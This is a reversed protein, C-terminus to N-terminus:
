QPLHLTELQYTHRLIHFISFNLWEYISRYGFAPMEATLCRKDFDLTTICDNIEAQLNSLSLLHISKDYDKIAPILFDPSKLKVTTNLMLERIAEINLDYQDDSIETIETLFDKFGNTAMIIHEIIQAANWGASEKNYLDEPTTEIVSVLKAFNFENLKLLARKESQYKLTKSTNDWLQMTDVYHVDDRFGQQTVTFECSYEDVPKLRYAITCYEEPVDEANWFSSWYSFKVANNEKYEKIEGKDLYKTDEWIGTFSIPTGIQWSTSLTAGWALTYFKESLLEKWPNEKPSYILTTKSYIIEQNM